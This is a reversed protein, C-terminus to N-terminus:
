YGQLLDSLKVELSCWKIAIHDPCRLGKLVQLQQESKGLSQHHFSSALSVWFKEELLKKLGFDFGSTLLNWLDFGIIEPIYFLMVIICSKLNM